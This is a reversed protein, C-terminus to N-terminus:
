FPIDEDGIPSVEQKEEEGNSDEGKSHEVNGSDDREDRRLDDDTKRDEHELILSLEQSVKKATEIAMSVRNLHKEANKLMKAILDSLMDVAEVRHYSKAEKFPVWQRDEEAVCIHWGKGPLRMYAVGLKTKNIVITEIGLGLKAIKEEVEVISLNLRDREQGLQEALETISAM